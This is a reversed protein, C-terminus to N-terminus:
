TRTNCSTQIDTQRNPLSSAPSLCSPPLQILARAVLDDQIDNADYSRPENHMSVTFKDQKNSKSVTSQLKSIYKTPRVSKSTYNINYRM